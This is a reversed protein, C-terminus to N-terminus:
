RFHGHDDEARCYGRPFGHSVAPPYSAQPPM